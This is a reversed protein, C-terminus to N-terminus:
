LSRQRTPLFPLLFTGQRHCLTLVLHAKLDRGVGVMGCNWSEVIEAPTKGVYCMCSTFSIEFTKPLYTSTVAFCEEARLSHKQVRLLLQAQVRLPSPAEPKHRALSEAHKLPSREGAHSQEAARVSVLEAKM